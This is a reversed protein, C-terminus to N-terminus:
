VKPFASIELNQLETNKFGNKRRKITEEEVQPPPKANLGRISNSLALAIFFMDSMSLTIKFYSLM